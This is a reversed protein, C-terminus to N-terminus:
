DCAGSAPITRPARTGVALCSCRRCACGFVKSEVFHGAPSSSIKGEFIMVEDRVLRVLSNRIIVGDTVMSGAIMGLKPISFVQRVEASGTSVERTISGLLGAMAKKMTDVVEYIIDFVEITIGQEALRERLAPLQELLVQRAQTHEAELRASMKQGEFKLEM